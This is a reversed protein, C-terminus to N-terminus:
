SFKTSVVILTLGLAGWPRCRLWVKEGQLNGALFFDRLANVQEFQAVRVACGQGGERGARVQRHFHGVAHAAVVRQAAVRGVGAGPLDGDLAVLAAAAAGDAHGVLHLGPLQQGDARRAVVELQCACALSKMKTAPPMPMVGTRDIIRCRLRVWAAAELEVVACAVGGARGEDVLQLGFEGAKHLDVVVVAVDVFRQVQPRHKFLGGGRV